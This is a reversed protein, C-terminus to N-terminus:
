LRSLTGELRLSVRVRAKDLESRGYDAANFTTQAVDDLSEIIALVDSRNDGRVRKALTHLREIVGALFDETPYQGRAEDLHYAVDSVDASREQWDILDELQSVPLAGHLKLLEHPTVSM